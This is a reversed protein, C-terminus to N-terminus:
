CAYKNKKRLKYDYRKAQIKLQKYLQGEYQVDGILADITEYKTPLDPLANRLASGKNLVINTALHLPNVGIKDCKQIQFFFLHCDLHQKYSCVKDADLLALQQARQIRASAAPLQTSLAALLDSMACLNEPAQADVNALIDALAEVFKEGEEVANLRADLFKLSAFLLNGVDSVRKM